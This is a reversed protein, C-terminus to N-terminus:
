QVSIKEVRSSGNGHTINLLYIGKPLAGMDLQHSVPMEIGGGAFEAIHITKGTMDMLLLTTAGSNAPVVFEVMSFGSTPNPFVKFSAQKVFDVTSAATTGAPQAAAITITYDEVEGSAFTECSTSATSRKMSVRMRTNGPATGAPIVIAGSVSATSTATTGFVQENADTFDGDQNLDIWVRWMEPQTQVFLGLLGGAPFGPTLTINTSSGAALSTSVGTYNGYGNNSGSANNISGLQVQAIWEASSNNGKSACYPVAVNQTTITGTASWASFVSSGCSSRVQFEYTTSATLGTIAKSNTTSTTLTWTATGQKRYQIEYAAAGLAPPWSLTFGTQTVSSTTLGTPTNCTTGTTECTGLCAAAAVRDRIRGGPLPGFGNNFNIGTSTLHCYSMITGGNTPQPGAPCGGETTYCNDIAGGPWSCSQTHPSGLNHGMEHTFVEVSWSYTPVNSYTTYISSFAYRYSTNCIVDVYAVGGLNGTINVLHAIDGNFTTRTTRFANLYDTSASGSYPDNSTWVFVQSLRTTINENQYLTAVQNFLGSIYDTVAQASGKNQFLDYDTEVYVKVCKVTAKQLDTDTIRIKMGEPMEATGCFNNHKASFNRDNYLVYTGPDNELRGLNFNGEDTSIMVMIENSFISVAVVSTEQGKVIGRYHIGANYKVPANGKADTIVTFDETTVDQKVLQLDMGMTASPISLEMTKPADSRMGAVAKPDLRFLEAAKMEKPLSNSKVTSNEKTFISYPKQIPNVSLKEQVMQAIPRAQQSWAGLSFGIIFLTALLQKKM